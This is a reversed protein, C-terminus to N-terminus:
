SNPNFVPVPNPGEPTVAPAVSLAEERQIAQKGETLYEGLRAIEADIQGKSEQLKVIEREVNLLHSKAMELISAMDRDRQKVYTTYSNM